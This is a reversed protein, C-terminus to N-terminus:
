WPIWISRSHTQGSPHGVSALVRSKMRSDLPKVPLLWCVCHRPITRCIFETVPPDTLRAIYAALYALM